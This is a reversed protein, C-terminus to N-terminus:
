RAARAFDEALVERPHRPARGTLRRVDDSVAAVVGRAILQYVPIVYDPVATPVGAGILAARFVEPTPAVDTIRRGLLVSLEAAVDAMSWAEPGTLTYVQGAHGQGALVAAASRGIDGADVFATRGQGAPFFLVQRQEIDARAYNAFNQAFFGPRLVTVELDRAEGLRRELRAHFPLEPLDQMGNASLYVVKRPGSAALHDVFPALLVDLDPVLPPGLLFVRDRGALAPAFTEPRQFDFVVADTAEAPVRALSRVAATAAVGHERLARLVARGVTGTAGLILSSSNM